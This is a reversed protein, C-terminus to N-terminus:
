FCIMYWYNIRRLSLIHVFAELLTQSELELYNKGPGTKLHYNIFGILIMEMMMEEVMFLFAKELLLLWM